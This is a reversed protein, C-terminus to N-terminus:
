QIHHILELNNVSLGDISLIIEGNILLLDKPIKIVNSTAPNPTCRKTKVNIIGIDRCFSKGALNIDETTVKADRILHMRIMAKFDQTTPTGIAQLSKQAVKARKQQRESLYKMNDKVVNIM